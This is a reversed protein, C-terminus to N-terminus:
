SRAHAFPLVAGHQLDEPISEEKGHCRQQKQRPRQHRVFADLAIQDGGSPKFFM